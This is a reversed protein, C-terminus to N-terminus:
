PAPQKAVVEMTLTLTVSPSVSDTSHVVV